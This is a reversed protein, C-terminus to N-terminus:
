KGSASFAGIGTLKRGLVLAHVEGTCEHTRVSELNNAHRLPAYGLTIGNGGLLERADRVPQRESGALQGDLGALDVTGFASDTKPQAMSM